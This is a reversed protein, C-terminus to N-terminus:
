PRVEFPSRRFRNKLHWALVVSRIADEDNKALGKEKLRQVQLYDDETLEVEIEQMKLPFNVFEPKYSPDATLERETRITQVRYDKLSRHSYSRFIGLKEEVIRDTGSSREFVQIRLPKLFFNSIPYLDGSGCVIPVALVDMAALLDVYDGKDANNRRITWRGRDDWGTYMWMNFSDHVDDPSLGYERISEALTDQCNTHRKFGWCAEYMDPSCRSGLLDTVCSEPMDQIFMM